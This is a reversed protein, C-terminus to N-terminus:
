PRPYFNAYNPWHLPMDMDVDWKYRSYYIYNQRLLYSQHSQRLLPSYFHTIPSATVPGRVFNMSSNQCPHLADNEMRWRKWAIYLYNRLCDAYPKWMLVVRTGPSDGLKKFHLLLNTMLRIQEDLTFYDLAYVSDEPNRDVLLVVPEEDSM